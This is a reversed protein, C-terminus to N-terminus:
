CSLKLFWYRPLLPNSRWNNKKLELNKKVRQILLYSKILIDVWESYQCIQYLDLWQLNVLSLFFILFQIHKPYISACKKIRASLLCFELVWAMNVSVPHTMHKTVNCETKLCPLFFFLISKVMHCSLALYKDWTM